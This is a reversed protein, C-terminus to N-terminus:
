LGDVSRHTQAARYLRDNIASGLGLDPFRVALIQDLGMEDLERMSAFLKTAALALDSEDPLAVVRAWSGTTDPDSARMGDIISSPGLLGCRFGPEKALKSRCWALAEGSERMLRLPTRPAYHRLLTGPSRQASAEGSGKASARHQLEMPRGLLDRLRDPSLGGLRLVVPEAGTADIVTSELGTQCPGGDLVAEVAEGLEDLVHQAQTPSIRGSRNASPAALPRQALRILDRAVPHGPVRLAVSDLGATVGEAVAGAGARRPLVLSMPGPWFAEALRWAYEPVAHALGWAQEAEAVHVILPNIAPRAKAAFVRAVAEPNTADCALGYVTETPMGVLGGQRLIEGARQLASDEAAWLEGGASASM